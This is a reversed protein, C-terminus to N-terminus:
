RQPRIRLVRGADDRVWVSGFGVALSIPIGGVRLRGVIRRTRPNVRDIQKFGLDAVWLSGAGLALGIPGLLGKVAGAPKNTRPDIRAVVNACDDAYGGAAWVNRADAALFGCPRRGLRVTATVANTAPDIRIVAKLKPVSVWVAGGGATMTM